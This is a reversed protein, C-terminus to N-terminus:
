EEIFGDQEEGFMMDNYEGSGPAYNTGEEPTEVDGWYLHIDCNSCYPDTGLDGEFTWGCYPCKWPRKDLIEVASAPEGPTLKEGPFGWEFLWPLGDMDGMCQHPGWHGEELWCGFSCEDSGIDITAFCKM